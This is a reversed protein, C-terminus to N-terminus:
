TKLGALIKATEDARATIEGIDSSPFTESQLVVKNPTRPHEDRYKKVQDLIQILLDRRSLCEGLQRGIASVKDDVAHELLEIAVDIKNARLEKLVGVDYVLEGAKNLTDRLKQNEYNNM